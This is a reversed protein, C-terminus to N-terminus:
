DPNRTTPRFAEPSPENPESSWPWSLGLGSAPVAQGYHGSDSIRLGRQRTGHVESELSQFSGAPFTQTFAGFVIAVEENEVDISRGPQLAFVGGFRVRDSGPADFHASAILICFGAAPAETPGACAAIANLYVIQDNPNCYGGVPDTFLDFASPDGGFLVLGAHPAAGAPLSFRGCPRAM